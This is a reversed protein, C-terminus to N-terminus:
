HRYSLSEYFCEGAERFPVLVQPKERQFEHFRRAFAQSTLIETLKRESSLLPRVIKVTDRALIEGVLDRTMM